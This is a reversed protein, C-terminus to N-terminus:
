IALKGFWSIRLPRHGLIPRQRSTNKTPEPSGLTPVIRRHGKIKRVEAPLQKRL